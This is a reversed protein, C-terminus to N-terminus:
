FPITEPRNKIEISKNLYALVCNIHSNSITDRHCDIMNGIYQADLECLKFGDLEIGYYKFISYITNIYSEYTEFICNIKFKCVNLCYGSIDDTQPNNLFENYQYENIIKFDIDTIGVILCPTTTNPYNTFLVFQGEKKGCLSDNLRIKTM